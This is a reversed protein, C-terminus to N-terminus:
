WPPCISGSVHSHVLHECPCQPPSSHLVHMREGLSHWCPESNSTLFHSHEAFHWKGNRPVSEIAVHPAQLNVAASQRLPAFSSGFVHEQVHSCGKAPLRQERVFIPGSEQLFPAVYSAEVLLQVLQWGGKAPSVQEMQSSPKSSFHSFPAVSSKVVQLHATFHKCGQDPGLHAVHLLAAESHWCPEVSSEVDHVQLQSGAFVESSM